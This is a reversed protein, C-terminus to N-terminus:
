YAACQQIQNQLTVRLRKLEQVCRVPFGEARYGNNVPNVNTVNTYLSGCTTVGVGYSTSPWCRGNNGVANLGGTVNNVQGSAPFYTGKKHIALKDTLEQVCRLAFGYSRYNLNM